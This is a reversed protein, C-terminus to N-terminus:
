FRSLQNESSYGVRSTLCIVPFKRLNSLLNPLKKLGANSMKIEEKASYITQSNQYNCVGSKLDHPKSLALLDLSM